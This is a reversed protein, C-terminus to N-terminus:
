RHTLRGTPRTSPAPRQIWAEMGQRARSRKGLCAARSRRARQGTGQSCAQRAGTPGCRGRGGGSMDDAACGASGSRARPHDDRWRRASGPGCHGRSVRSAGGSDGPLLRRTVLHRGAAKRAPCPWHAAGPPGAAPTAACVHTAAGPAAEERLWEQLSDRRGGGRTTTTCRYPGGVPREVSLAEGSAWQPPAVSSGKTCGSLPHASPIRAWHEAFFATYALVEEDTPRLPVEVQPWRPARTKADM